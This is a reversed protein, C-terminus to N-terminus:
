LNIDYFSWDRDRGISLEKKVAEMVEDVTIVRQCLKSPCVWGNESRSNWQNKDNYDYDYLWRMPRGCKKQCFAIEPHAINSFFPYGFEEPSTGCWMVVSPTKLHAAAHQLFSDCSILLDSYKLIALSQEISTKGIMNLGHPSIMHPAVNGGIQIVTGIKSCNEVIKLYKDIDVMKNWYSIFPQTVIIPKPLSDLFMSMKELVNNPIPIEPLEKKDNKEYIKLDNYHRVM